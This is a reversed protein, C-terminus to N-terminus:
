DSRLLRFFRKLPSLGYTHALRFPRALYYLASLLAPLPIAEHDKATPAAKLRVLYIFYRIRDRWRERVRFRFAYHEAEQVPKDQQSVMRMQAQSVLSPIAQDDKVRQRIAKPLVTGFYDSALKVGLLLMREARLRQAHRLLEGWDLNPNSQLMGSLAYVWELRAWQHKAGHVCHLLIVDQLPLSLVERGALQISKLRSWLAELGFPFSFGSATFKWHLDVHTQTEHHAFTFAWGTRFLRMQDSKSTPLWFDYGHAQLLETARWVEKAPVLVDIDDCERLALDGYCLSALIPGKFPVAHIGAKSMADLVRLLEGTLTLSRMGIQRTLIRLQDRVESPVQDLPYARLCRYVWPIM